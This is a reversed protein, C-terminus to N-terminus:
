RAHELVKRAGLRGDRLTVSLDMRAAAEPDHTVMVLTAGLESRAALLLDIVTASNDSDLAGTPEDALIVSPEHILARAVSVRQRQGGSLQDPLKDVQGALGLRDLLRLCREYRDAAGHLALQYAVNEIVSLFPMLNDSQFVFGFARRRLDARERESSLVRRLTPEATRSLVAHM